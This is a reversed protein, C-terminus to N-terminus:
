RTLRRRLLETDKPDSKVNLTTSEGYCMPPNLEDMEVFGASEVDAGVKDALRCHSIHREFLVFGVEKFKIYKM